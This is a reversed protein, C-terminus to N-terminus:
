NNELIKRTAIRQKAWEGYLDTAGTAFMGKPDLSILLESHLPRGIFEGDLSLLRLDVLKQLIAKPDGGDKTFYSVAAEDRIDISGTSYASQAMVLEHM